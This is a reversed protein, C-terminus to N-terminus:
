IFPRQKQDDAKFGALESLKEEDLLTLTNRRWDILKRERLIRISKNTHVVSLGMTDAIHEQTIPINLRKGQLMGARRARDFLYLLVYAIREIAPRQGVAVLHDAMISEERSAIWTLDYGLGAHKQYLEWIRERSFVCLRGDSMAQVSHLMKDFIVGQLGLFDGRVAFNLVQRGGGELVKYRLMWGNLVTFMHASDHGELFVHSGAKVSLEGVKFSEIFALETADFERYAGLKRIPCASCPTTSAPM